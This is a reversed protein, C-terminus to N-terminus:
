CKLVTPLLVTLTWVHAKLAHMVFLFVADTLCRALRPRAVAVLRRPCCVRPPPSRDHVLTGNAGPLLRAAHKCPISSLPAHSPLRRQWSYIAWCAQVLHQQALSAYPVCAWCAPMRSWASGAAANRCSAFPVAAAPRAVHLRRLNSWLLSPRQQLAASHSRCLVRRRSIRRLAMNWASSCALPYGQLWRM